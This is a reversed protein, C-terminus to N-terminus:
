AFFRRHKGDRHASRPRQERLWLVCFSTDLGGSFALLTKMELRVSREQTKALFDRRDRLWNETTALQANLDDLGLEASASPENASVFSGSQIDEAVKAYADRFPM